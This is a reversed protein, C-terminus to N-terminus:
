YLKEVTEHMFNQRTKLYRMRVQVDSHVVDCITPKWPLTKKVFIYLSCTKYLSTPIVQVFNKSM